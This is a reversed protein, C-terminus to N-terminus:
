KPKLWKRNTMTGKRAVKTAVFKKKKLFYFFFTLKVSEVQWNLMNKMKKCCFCLCFQNCGVTSNM